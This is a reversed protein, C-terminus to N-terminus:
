NFSVKKIFWIGSANNREYNTSPICLSTYIYGSSNSNIDDSSPPAAAGTYMILKHEQQNWIWFPKNYLREFLKPKQQITELTVRKFDNFTL